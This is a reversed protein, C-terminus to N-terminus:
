RWEKNIGFLINDSNKENQSQQKQAEKLQEEHHHKTHCDPCLAILNDLTTTGGDSIHIKHHIHTTPPLTRGCNHCRYNQRYKIENKISNPVAPRKGKKKSKEDKTKSIKLQFLRNYYDNLDKNWQDLDRGIKELDNM